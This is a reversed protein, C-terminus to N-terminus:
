WLSVLDRSRQSQRNRTIGRALGRFIEVRKLLFRVKSEFLKCNM